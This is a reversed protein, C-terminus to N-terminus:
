LLFIVYAALFTLCKPVMHYWINKVASEPIGFEFPKEFKEANAKRRVM